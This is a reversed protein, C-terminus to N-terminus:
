SSFDRSNTPQCFLRGLSNLRGDIPLNFSFPHKSYKKAINIAANWDADFVCDDVAYYRCGKRVGDKLGRCDKRSTMYPNVTAVCKGLHLAKYTLIQLLLYFPVQSMRNNHKKRKHGEKTKSTNQKIKSLDEMVIISKDTELIKNAVKHIYDKSFDVEKRKLKKLKRKASKTKKAQVKRKNHRIKRKHKIYEKSDLVDGDSTTVLRRIGLDIGLVSDDEPNVLPINFTVSIFVKDNRLFILPDCTEYKEFLENVKKYLKFTAKIRKNKTTPSTIGISTKTFKSYLRKDLRLSFGKKELPKDIKHKNSKISKYSASIDKYAKIIAQTPMNSFSVKLKQYCLDHIRKLSLNEKKPFILQSAKNCVKKYECLFDVIAQQDEKNDFELQINYTKM